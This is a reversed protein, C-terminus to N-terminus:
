WGHTTRLYDVMAEAIEPRDKIYGLAFNCSGCLLGRVIGTEHDHDICLAKIEGTRWHRRTEPQHCIACVGGQAELMAYFQEATLGYQTVHRVADRRRSNDLACPKCGRAGNRRQYFGTDAYRHGRRCTERLSGRNRGRIGAVEAEGSM